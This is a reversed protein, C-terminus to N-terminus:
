VHKINARLGLTEHQESTCARPVSCVTARTRQKSVPVLVKHKSNVILVPPRQDSRPCCSTGCFPSGQGLASGVCIPLLMGFAPLFCDKVCMAPLGGGKRVRRGRGKGEEEGKYVCFCPGIYFPQLCLALEGEWCMQPTSCTDCPPSAASSQGGAHSLVCEKFIIM